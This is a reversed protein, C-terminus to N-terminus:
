IRDGNRGLLLAPLHDAHCPILKELMQLLMIKGLPFHDPPNRQALLRFIVYSEEQHVSSGKVVKRVIPKLISYLLSM